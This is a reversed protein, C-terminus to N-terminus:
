HMTHHPLLSMFPNSRRMSVSVSEALGIYVVKDHFDFEFGSDYQIHRASKLIGIECHGHQLVQCNVTMKFIFTLMAAFDIDITARLGNCKILETVNIEGSRNFRNTKFKHM